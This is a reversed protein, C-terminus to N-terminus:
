TLKKLEQILTRLWTEKMERNLALREAFGKKQVVGFCFIGYAQNLANINAEDRPPLLVEQGGWREPYNTISVKPQYNGLYSWLENPISVNKVVLKNHETVWQAHQQWRWTNPSNKKKQTIGIFALKRVVAPLDLKEEKTWSKIFNFLQRFTSGSLVLDCFCIGSPDSKLQEPSLNLEHFHDKLASYAAPLENKINEIDKFRNSINLIDIKTEHSTWAFVGSLYDFISEPSRGVFIIRRNLSRAVVKSACEAIDELYYLFDPHCEIDILRGLQDSEKLNWRFPKV